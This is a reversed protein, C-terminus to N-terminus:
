TASLEGVDPAGHGAARKRQYRKLLEAALAPEIVGSHFFSAYQAEPLAHRLRQSVRYALFRAATYETAPLDPATGGRDDEIWNGQNAGMETALLAVLTTEMASPDVAAFTVTGVPMRHGEEWGRTLDKLPTRGEDLFPIWYLRFELPGAAQRQTWDDTLYHDGAQSPRQENVDNVPVFTFKGLVDRARVVGTWYQQYASSSRSTRGTQRIVQTAIAPARHGAHRVLGALLRAQSALMNVLGAGENGVAADATAKLLAVFERPTDTPAGADNITIFDVRRGDSARFAVMLGLFDAETEAHPCGLGNSLRGIGILPTTGTPTFIGLGNLEPPLNGDVHLLVKGAGLQPQHAGRDPQTLRPHNAVLTHQVGAIEEALAELVRREDPTPNYRQSM